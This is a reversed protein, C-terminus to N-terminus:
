LQWSYQTGNQTSKRLQSLEEQWDPQQADRGGQQGSQSNGQNGQDKESANGSGPNSSNGSPNGSSNGPTNGSAAPQQIDPKWWEARIQQDSLRGALDPLNQQLAKTLSGDASRVSMTLSGSKEALRLDVRQNDAGTIQVQVATVPQSTSPQESIETVSATEQVSADENSDAAPDTSQASNQTTSIAATSGATPNLAASGSSAASGRGGAATLASLQTAFANSSVLNLPDPQGTPSTIAPDTPTNDSSAAGQIKVAFALGANSGSAQAVPPKATPASAPGSSPPTVVRRSAAGAAVSTAPTSTADDGDSVHAASANGASGNAAASAKVPHKPRDAPKVSVLQEKGSQAVPTSGQAHTAPPPETKDKAHYVAASSPQPNSPQSAAAPTSPTNSNEDAGPAAYSSIGSSSNFQQDPSSTGLSTETQFQQTMTSSNFSSLTGDQYASSDVGLSSLTDAFSPYASPALQQSMSLAPTEPQSNLRFTNNAFASNLDLV